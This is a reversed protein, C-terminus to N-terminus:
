KYSIDHGTNKIVLRVDNDKAFKIGAAVDEPQTAAISYLPSNGLDCFPYSVQSGTVPPCTNILPYSYAIPSTAVWTNDTWNGVLNQCTKADYGPGPYCPKALPENQILKGHM